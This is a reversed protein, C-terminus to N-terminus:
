VKRTFDIILRRDRKTPRKPPGANRNMTRLLRKQESVAERAEISELTETYLTAAEAAGKRKGSLENVIVTYVYDGRKITLEDGIRVTKAAKVRKANSHVKGGSVAQAAMSRTKFFRAAWLWKDIRVNISDSM